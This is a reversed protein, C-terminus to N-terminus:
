SRPLARIMFIPCFCSIKLYQLTTPNTPHISCSKHSPNSTTQPPFDPITYSYSARPVHKFSRSSPCFFTCKTCLYFSASVHVVLPCCIPRGASLAPPWPLPFFRVRRWPEHLPLSRDLIEAPIFYFCSDGGLFTWLPFFDSLRLRSFRLSHTHLTPIRPLTYFFRKYLCFDPV